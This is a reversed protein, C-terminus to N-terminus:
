LSPIPSPTDLSWLSSPNLFTCPFNQPRRVNVFYDATLVGSTHAVVITQIIKILIVSFLTLKDCQVLMKYEDSNEDSILSSCQVHQNSIWCKLKM